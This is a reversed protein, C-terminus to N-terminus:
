QELWPEIEGKRQMHIGVATDLPLRARLRLEQAKETYLQIGLGIELPECSAGPM